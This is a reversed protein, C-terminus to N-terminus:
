LYVKYIYTNEFKLNISSFTVLAYLTKKYGVGMKGQYLFKAGTTHKNCNNFWYLYMMIILEYRSGMKETKVWQGKGTGPNWGAGVSCKPTTGTQGRTAITHKRYKLVKISLKHFVPSINQLTFKLQHTDSTRRMILRPKFSKSLLTM